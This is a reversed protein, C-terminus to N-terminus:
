PTDNLSADVFPILETGLQIKDPLQRIKQECEIFMNIWVIMLFGRTIVIPHIHNIKFLFEHKENICIKLLKFNLHWIEALHSIDTQILQGSKFFRSIFKFLTALGKYLSLLRQIIFM